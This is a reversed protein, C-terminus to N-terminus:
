PKGGIAGYVLLLTFTSGILLWVVMRHSSGNPPTEKGLEPLLWLAHRREAQAVSLDVKGMM